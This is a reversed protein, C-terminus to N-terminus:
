QRVADCGDELLVTDADFPRTAPGCASEGNAQLRQVCVMEEVVAALGAWSEDGAGQRTSASGVNWSAALRQTLRGKAVRLSGVFAPQEFLGATLLPAAADLEIARLVASWAMGHLLASFYADGADLGFRPGLAAALLACRETDDWITPAARLQLGGDVDTLLPRLLARAVVQQMGIRGLLDVAHGISAKGRGRHAYLASRTVRLLEAALLSDQAVLRVVEARSYDIDRLAQLLRPVVRPARRLLRECSVSPDLAADLAALVRDGAHPPGAIGSPRVALLLVLYRGWNPAADLQPAASGPAPDPFPTPESAPLHRASATRWRGWLRRLALM